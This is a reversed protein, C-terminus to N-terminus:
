ADDGFNCRAFTGFLRRARADYALAALEPTSFRGLFRTVGRYQISATWAGRTFTVGRFGTQNVRPTSATVESRSCRILNGRRNDLDNGNRHVIM